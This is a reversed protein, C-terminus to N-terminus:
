IYKRIKQSMKDSLDIIDTNENLRFPCFFTMVNIQEWNEVEIGIDLYPERKDINKPCEELSWFNAHICFRPKLKKKNDAKKSEDLPEPQESEKPIGSSVESTNEESDTINSSYWLGFSKM